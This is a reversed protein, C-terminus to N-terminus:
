VLVDTFYSFYKTWTFFSIKLFTNPGSLSSTVPSKLINCFPSRCLKYVESFIRAILDILKLHAPWVPNQYSVRFSLPWTSWAQSPIPYLPPRKHKGYHGEREMFQQSNKQSASSVKLKGLLVSSRPTPQRYQLTFRINMNAVSMQFFVVIQVLTV